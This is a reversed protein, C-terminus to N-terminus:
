LDSLCKFFRSNSRLPDEAEYTRDWPSEDEEPAMRLRQVDEEALLDDGEDSDTDARGRPCLSPHSSPDTDDTESGEDAKTARQGATVGQTSDEEEPFDKAPGDGAGPPESPDTPDSREGFIEARAQERGARSFVFALQFIYNMTYLTRERIIAACDRYVKRL